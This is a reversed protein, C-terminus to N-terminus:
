EELTKAESVNSSLEHTDKCKKCSHGPIKALGVTISIKWYPDDLIPSSCLDCWLGSSRITM